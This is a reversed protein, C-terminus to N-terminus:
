EKNPASSSGLVLEFKTGNQANYLHLDGGHLEAIQKAIALGLGSGGDERRTVDGRVFPDFVIKKLEDPIGVGNDAIVLSLRQESKKLQITVQTGPPNHQLANSLLNIIARRMLSTDCETMIEEAPIDVEMQFHKEEFPEYYDAAIERLLEAIDVRETVLSYDPRDLKSLNFIQDILETVHTAKNFILQLCREKKKEHEFIGVELAKAYGLITTIPTKLDHSLDALMRRKGDQLRRNEAESQELSEAMDNFRQQIVSFEYSATINLRESYEGEEMRQIASAIQELPGTFRKATWLAYLLSCTGLLVLFLLLQLVNIEITRSNMDMVLVLFTLAVVGFSAAFFVYSKFLAYFLKNRSM